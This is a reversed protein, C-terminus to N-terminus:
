VPNAMMIIASVGAGATASLNSQPSRPRAKQYGVKIIGRAFDDSQLKRIPAVRPVETDGTHSRTDCISKTDRLLAPLGCDHLM